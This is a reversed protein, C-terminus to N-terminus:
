GRQERSLAPTLTYAIYLGKERPMGALAEGDGATGRAAPRRGLGADPPQGHARSAARRGCSPPSGPGAQPQTVPRLRWWRSSCAAAACPPTGCPPAPRQGQSGRWSAHPCAMHKPTGGCDHVGVSVKWM